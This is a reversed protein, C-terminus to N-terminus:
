AGVGKGWVCGVEVIAAMQAMFMTAL